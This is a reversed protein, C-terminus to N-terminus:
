GCPRRRACSRRSAPYKWPSFPPAHCPPTPCIANAASKPGVAAHSRRPMTHTPAPGHTTLKLTASRVVSKAPARLIARMTLVRPPVGCVM